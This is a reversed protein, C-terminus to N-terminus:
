HSASTPSLDLGQYTTERSFSRLATFKSMEIIEWAGFEQRGMYWRERQRPCSPRGSSRLIEVTILRYGFIKLSYWARSLPPVGTGQNSNVELAMLSCSSSSAM